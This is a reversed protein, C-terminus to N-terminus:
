ISDDKIQERRENVEIEDEEDFCIEEERVLEDEAYFLLEHAECCFKGECPDGCYVCERKEEKSKEDM